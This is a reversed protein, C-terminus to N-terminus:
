KATGIKAYDPWGDRLTQADSAHRDGVEAMRQYKASCDGFVAALTVVSNALSAATASPVSDRLHQLTDRLGDNASQASAVATDVRANRRGASALADALQKRLDGETKRANVIAENEKEKYESVARQYGIDQQYTNYKHIGYVAGGLFAVILVLRIILDSM